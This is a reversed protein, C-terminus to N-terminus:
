QSALIGRRAAAAVTDRTYGIKQACSLACGRMAHEAVATYRHGLMSVGGAVVTFHIEKASWVWVVGEEKRKWGCFICVPLHHGAPQREGAHAHLHEEVVDAMYAVKARRTTAATTPTTTVTARTANM